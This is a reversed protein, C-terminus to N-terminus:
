QVAWSQVLSNSPVLGAVELREEAGLNEPWPVTDLVGPSSLKVLIELDMGLSSNDVLTDVGVNVGVRCEKVVGLKALCRQSLQDLVRATSIHIDTTNGGIYTYTVPHLCHLVWTTQRLGINELKLLMGHGPAQTGCKDSQHNCDLFQRSSCQQNNRSSVSM